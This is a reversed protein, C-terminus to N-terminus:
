NYIAFLLAFAGFALQLGHCAFCTNSSCYKEVPHYQIEGPGFCGLIYPFTSTVVYGYM